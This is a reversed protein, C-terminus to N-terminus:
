TGSLHCTASGTNVVTAGGALSGTAGTWGDAALALDDVSCPPGTDPAPTPTATPAASPSADIWPIVGVRVSSEPTEVATPSLSPSGTRVPLLQGAYLGVALAILATAGMVTFVTARRTRGAFWGLDRQDLLLKGRYDREGPPRARLIEELRKPKM